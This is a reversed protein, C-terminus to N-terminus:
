IKYRKIFSLKRKFLHEAGDKDMDALRYKLFNMRQFVKGYNMKARKHAVYLPQPYGEIISFISFSALIQVLENLRYAFKSPIEIFMIPCSFDGFRVYFGILKQNLGQFLLDNRIGFGKEIPMFKTRINKENGFLQEIFTLESFKTFDKDKLLEILDQRLGLNKVFYDDFEFNNTYDKAICSQFSSLFKNSISDKIVALSPIENKLTFKFYRSYIRTFNNLINKIENFEEIYKSIADDPFTFTGDFLVMDPKEGREVEEELVNLAIEYELSQRLISIAINFYDPTTINFKSLYKEEYQHNKYLFAGSFSIIARKYDEYFQGGDIAMVTKENLDKIEPNANYHILTGAEPPIMNKLKNAIDTYSRNIEIFRKFDNRTGSEVANIFSEFELEYTKKSM